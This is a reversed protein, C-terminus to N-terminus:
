KHKTPYQFNNIVLRRLCYLLYCGFLLAFSYIVPLIMSGLIPTHNKSLTYGAVTPTIRSHCTRVM